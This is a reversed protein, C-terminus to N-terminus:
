VEVIEIQNIMKYIKDTVSSYFYVFIKNAVYPDYEELNYVITFLDYPIAKINKHLSNM